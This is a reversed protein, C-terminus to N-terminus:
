YVKVKKVKSWKGMYIHGNSQIYERVRFYKVTGSSMNYLRWNNTYYRSSGCGCASLNNFKKTSSWQIQYNAYHNFKLTFEGFGKLVKFKPVKPKTFESHYGYDSTYKKGKVTKVGKVYFGVWSTTGKNVITATRGKTKKITVNKRKKDNWVQVIYYDAEKVKSWAVTVAKATRKKVKVTKPARPLIKFSKTVKGSYNGKFQLTVTQKGVKKLNTKKVIKFDTGETLYYWDSYVPFKVRKGTYSQDYIKIKSAKRPQITFTKVQTGTYDGVGEITVTATGANVNNSYYVEYDDYM